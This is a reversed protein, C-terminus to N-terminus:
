RVDNRSEEYYYPWCRKPDSHYSPPCHPSCSSRSPDCRSEPGCKSPTNPNCKAHVSRGLELERRANRAARSDLIEGLRAKRVNGLPMWRAFVCPWVDGNSAVAVEGHACAGCLQPVGPRQERVGRGVQRLHDTDVNTVGLTALRRRAQETRQDDVIDILGVRLPISRRVAEVINATTHAYCPLDPHLTPEGGIFQVMRLGLAAGDDIVRRWDDVAM